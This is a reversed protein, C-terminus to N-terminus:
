NKVMSTRKGVIYEKNDIIKIGVNWSLPVAALVKKKSISESIVVLTLSIQPSWFIITLLKQQQNNFLDKGKMYVQDKGDAKVNVSLTKDIARKWIEM